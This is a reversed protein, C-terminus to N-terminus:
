QRDLPDELVAAFIGADFGTVDKNGVIWEDARWMLRVSHHCNRYEDAFFQEAPHGIDKVM